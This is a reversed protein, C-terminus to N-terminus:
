FQFYLFPSYSAALLRAVAVVYLIALVYPRRQGDNFVRPEVAALIIGALLAAVAGPQIQWILERGVGLGYGGVMGRLMAIASGFSGARFFVWGVVVVALTYGRGRPFPRDRFLREMILWSGHWAGWFVFTWAAGHWLGGLVMVTMLNVVTRSSGLRNGGLPIYLYDRLWTSLSIHWRRWFETISRSQYPARFNEPFHFGMMAGLGIAMDSYASFDFYIQVTYAALGIWAAAAGPEPLAFVADV